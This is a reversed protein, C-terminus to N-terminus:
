PTHILPQPLNRFARFNRGGKEPVGLLLTGQGLGEVMLSLNQRPRVQQAGATSRAGRLSSLM